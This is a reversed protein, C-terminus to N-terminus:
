GPVHGGEKLADLMPKLDKEYRQWLAVSAKSIPQRAQYVSLTEIKRKNEHFNLCADEWELGCAAILKRTEEEPNAVLEEYQVEYFWDPVRERWFDIMEVFTSYYTALDRQDYAYLHTNDPFKNKYMSLLNDRPDRRVVVFRANPMALKLIGLSMYSQISKDTIRGSDPFRDRILAEFDFGLKVLDENPVESIHRNRGRRIILNHATRAAEGVEGAGTVTSHSSIIQEILTTGSRPMGTVFIPAFDTTGDLKVSKWDFDDFSKKVLEVDRLRKAIDYPYVKCMLANADNLYKFVHTYDKTDELLKAIAFGINMRDMDALRPDDYKAKMREVFPDGAKAKYSASFQRYNEGNNPDLDFARIFLDRSEDFQGLTQLLQAKGTVAIPSDQNKSLALNFNALAEDDKGARAQATGLLAILDEPITGNWLEIAKEFAKVAEDHKNLRVLANGLARHPDPSTRNIDIARELLPLAAAPRGLRTQASALAILANFMGPAIGVATRFSAAADEFRESEMYLRGLNDHAEAYGPDLNIATRFNSEAERIKRQCMQAAGLINRAIASKPFKQAVTSALREAEAYKGSNMAAVMRDIDSPKVGGMAPSTSSRRAGFRDQLGIRFETSVPATKLASLFEEETKRDGGLAVATALAHWVAQEKPRLETAKRLHKLASRAADTQCLIRGIQYHAEAINPNSKLLRGYIKLAEDFNKANQHKLATAYTKQIEEATLM